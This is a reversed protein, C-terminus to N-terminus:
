VFNYTHNSYLSSIIFITSSQPFCPLASNGGDQGQRYVCCGIFWESGELRGSKVFYLKLFLRILISSGIVEAEWLLAGM